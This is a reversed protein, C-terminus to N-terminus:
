PVIDIRVPNSATNWPNMLACAFVVQSGVLVPVLPPANLEATAFGGSDLVGLFDTFVPGNLNNLVFGTFADRNLPLVPGRPLPTGPDTGSLSGAVLYTRGASSGGGNLTIAVTGGSTASLKSQDASLIVGNSRTVKVERLIPSFEQNPTSMSIRYQLYRAGPDIVGALSSGSPSVANFTGMNSADDSARVEMALKSPPPVDADWLITAWDSAGGGDLISGTLEGALEFRTLDWWSLQESKSVDEATIVADLRGDGTVDAADVGAPHGADSAIIRQMANRAVGSLAVQEPISLWAANQAIDFRDGWDAVPGPEDPGGSWDTQVNEFPSDQAPVPSLAVLIFVGTAM